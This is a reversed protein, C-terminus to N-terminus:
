LALSMQTNRLVEKAQEIGSLQLIHQKYKPECFKGTKLDVIRGKATVLYYSGNFYKQKAPRLSTPTVKSSSITTVTNDEFLLKLRKSKSVGVVLALYGNPHRDYNGIM